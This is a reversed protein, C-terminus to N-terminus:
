DNNQNESEIIEAQREFWNDGEPEIDESEPIINGKKILQWYEYASLENM